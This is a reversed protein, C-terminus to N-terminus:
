NLFYMLRSILADLSLNRWSVGVFEQIAAEDQVFISDIPDPESGIYADMCVYDLNSNVTLVVITVGSKFVHLNDTTSSTLRYSICDHDMMLVQSSVNVERNEEFTMSRIAPFIQTM